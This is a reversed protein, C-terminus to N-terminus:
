KALMTYLLLGLAIFALLSGVFVKHFTYGQNKYYFSLGLSLALSIGLIWYIM